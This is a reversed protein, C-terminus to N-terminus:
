GLPPDSERAFHRHEALAGIFAPLMAAVTDADSADAVLLGDDPDGSPLTPSVGAQDLLVSSAGLM